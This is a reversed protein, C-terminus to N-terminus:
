NLHTFAVVLAMFIAWLGIAFGFEKALNKISERYRKREAALLELVAERYKDATAASANVGALYERNNTALTGEVQHFKSFGELMLEQRWVAADYKDAFIRLQCDGDGDIAAVAVVDIHKMGLKKLVDEM